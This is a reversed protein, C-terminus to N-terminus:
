GKQTLFDVEIKECEANLKKLPLIEYRLKVWHWVLCRVVVTGLLWQVVMQPTLSRFMIALISLSIGYVVTAGLVNMQKWVTEIPDLQSLKHKLARIKAENQRIDLNM